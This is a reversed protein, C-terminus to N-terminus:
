SALPLLPHMIWGVAIIFSFSYENRILFAFAVCELNIFTVFPRLFIVFDFFLMKILEIGSSEKQLNQSQTNASWREM